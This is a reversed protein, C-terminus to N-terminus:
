FIFQGFIYALICESASWKMWYYKWLCLGIHIYTFTWLSFCEGEWILNNSNFCYIGCEANPLKCCPISQHIHSYAHRKFPHQLREIWLQCKLLPVLALFLVAVSIRRTPWFMLPWYCINKLIYSSWSWKWRLWKLLM